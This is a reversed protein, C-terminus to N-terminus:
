RARSSFLSNPVSEESFVGHKYALRIVDGPMIAGVAIIPFIILAVLEMSRMVMRSLGKEDHAATKMSMKSFMITELPVLVVGTLFTILKFALNMCTLHGAPLSSALMKDVMHNLENVAMNMVAPGALLMLRRFHPDGLDFSPRFGHIKRMAPRLVLVQLIGSFFVGWALARVGMTGSFGITAILLAFTLPFGTLQAALYNERANLISSLM